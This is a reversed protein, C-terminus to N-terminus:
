RIVPMASRRRIDIKAVQEEVAMTSSRRTQPITLVFTGARISDRGASPRSRGPSYDSTGAISRGYGLPTATSDTVRLFQDRRAPRVSRMSGESLRRGGCTVRAAEVGLTPRTPQGSTPSSLDSTCTAAILHAAFRTSRRRSGSIRYCATGPIARSRRTPIEAAM